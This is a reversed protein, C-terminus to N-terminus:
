KRELGARIKLTTLKTGYFDKKTCGARGGGACACACACACSVCACACSSVCSSHGGSTRGTSHGGSARSRSANATKGGTATGTRHGGAVRSDGPGEHGSPGPGHGGFLGPGYTPPVHTHFFFYPTVDGDMGAQDDYYDESNRYAARKMSNIIAIMIFMFVIFGVIADFADDGDDYYDDSYDDSSWYDNANEEIYNLEDQYNFADYNYELEVTFSEGESLSSNWYYFEDDEYAINYANIPEPNKSWSILLNDVKIEDFWGPTFDFILSEGNQYFIDHQHVSFTFDIVEDEYYENKFNVIAYEGDAYCYSINDSLATVEEVYSNAMGIQVWSVPGLGDSELVEWRIHYTINASGDDCPIVEIEYDLIEDTNERAYVPLIDAMLGAGLSVIVALALLLKKIRRIKM